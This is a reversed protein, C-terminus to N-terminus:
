TWKSGRGSRKDISTVCGSEASHPAASASRSPQAQSSVAANVWLLPHFSEFSISLIVIATIAFKMGGVILRTKMSFARQLIRLGPFNVAMKM